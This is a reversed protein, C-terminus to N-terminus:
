KNLLHKKFFAVAQGFMIARNERKQAGHGEDPFIMLQSAIGKRAFAEHIQIAEGAPVRPDTAGHLILLPSKVQDIYTIPSLQRLADKDKEPDGYENIRLIRRYPATNKLFTVLNSIGVIDVGADYAGAFRTMGMLVVYGGYSGGYIGVKPPRGESAFRSRAWKAADEIDTIVQLRKPGDDAHLWKKGYGDSGRVNPEVFIFGADVFFQAHVSFGPTSQGEPGGHFHVVVACLKNACSEPRRVLAPIKTGDRAPYFELAARAFRTTDVEPTSPQHWRALKRTKWDYVYSQFPHRGDDVSITTFRGDPTTLGAIVHDAEPLKPLELRKFGKAGLARLRTYGDENLQYLVRTKNRDLRFEAIDHPIEETIPTFKGQRWSYLRRYEGFKNTLVVVEGETAGYAGQYEERENQGFLAALKKTRPDWEHYEAILSGRDRRLLLRGDTKVGDVNWLGEHDFIKERAKQQLDYRYIAFSDPRVDNSRYYIFRSDDTVHEFFTQVGSKHQIEILSGGAVPLLYLGPNEEGKRDRTVVVYKGDPTIADLLTLDEGGTLQSPFRMPGDIKWIQPVGTVSWTFFLSKGAPTLIGMGPGRIDLLAQIKKAVAAPLPQPRFKELVAASVSQLGHGQYGAKIASSKLQASLAKLAPADMPQSAPQSTAVSASPCPANAGPGSCAVTAIGVLLPLAFRHFSRM